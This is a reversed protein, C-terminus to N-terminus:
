SPVTAELSNFVFAPRASSLSNLHSPGSVEKFLYLKRCSRCLAPCSSRFVSAEHDRLAGAYSGWEAQEGLERMPAREAARIARVGKTEVLTVIFEIGRCPCTNEALRTSE